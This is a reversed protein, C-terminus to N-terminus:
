ANPELGGLGIPHLHPQALRDVEKALELDADTIGGHEPTHISLTLIRGRVDVGLAPEHGSRATSESVRALFTMAQAHSACPYIKELVHGRRHWGHMELLLQDVVHGHLFRPM